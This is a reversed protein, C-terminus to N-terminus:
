QYHPRWVVVMINPPKIKRLLKPSTKLEGKKQQEARKEEGPLVLKKEVGLPVLLHPRVEKGAGM